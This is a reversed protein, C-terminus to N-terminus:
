ELLAHLQPPIDCAFMQIRYKEDLKLVQELQSTLEYISNVIEQEPISLPPSTSEDYARLFPYNQFKWTMSNALSSFLGCEVLHDIFTIVEDRRNTVQTTVTLTTLHKMIEVLCQIVKENQPLYEKTGIFFSSIMDINILDNLDSSHIVLKTLLPTIYEVKSMDSSIQLVFSSIIPSEPLVFSARLFLSILVRECVLLLNPDDCEIMMEFVRPIFNTLTFATVVFSSNEFTINELIGLIRDPKFENQGELLFNLFFSLSLTTPFLLSYNISHDSFLWFFLQPENQLAKLLQPGLEESIFLKKAQEATM